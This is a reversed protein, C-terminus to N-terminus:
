LYESAKLSYLEVLNNNIISDFKYKRAFRSKILFMSIDNLFICFKVDNILNLAQGMYGIIYLENNKALYIIKNLIDTEM